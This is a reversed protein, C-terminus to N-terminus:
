KADGVDWASESVEEDAGPLMAHRYCFRGINSKIHAYTALAM